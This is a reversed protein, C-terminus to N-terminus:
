WGEVRRLVESVTNRLERVSVSSVMIPTDCMYGCRLGSTRVSPREPRARLSSAVDVSRSLRAQAPARFSCRHADKSRGSTAQEHHGGVQGRDQRDQVV